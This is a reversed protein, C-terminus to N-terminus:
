PIYQLLREPLNETTEPPVHKSELEKVMHPDRLYTGFSTFVSSPVHPYKKCFKEIMEDIEQNTQEVLKAYIELIGQEYFVQRVKEVCKPDSKGYNKVIIDKQSPTAIDLATTVVWTVSGCEIDTGHREVEGYHQQNEFDEVDNRRCFLYSMKLFVQVADHILQQDRIGALYLGATAPNVFPYVHFHTSKTMYREKTYWTWDLTKTQPPRSILEGLLARYNSDKILGIVEKSSVHGKMTRDAVERTLMLMIALFVSAQEGIQPLLYLCTNGNRIDSKDCLDDLVINWCHVMQFAWAVEYMQTAQKFSFPKEVIEQCATIVPYSLSIDNSMVYEMAEITKDLSVQDFENYIGSCWVNKIHRKVGPWTEALGQVIKVKDRRETQTVPFHQTTPVASTRLINKNVLSPRTTQLLKAFM